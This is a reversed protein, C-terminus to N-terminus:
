AALFAELQDIKRVLPLMLDLAPDRVPVWENDECCAVDDVSLTKTSQSKENRKM